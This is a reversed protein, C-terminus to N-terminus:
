RFSELAPQVWRLLVNSVSPIQSSAITMLPVVGYKVMNMYFGTNLEGPTSDEIRSLLGDKEMEALIWGTVLGLILFLVLFSRDIVDDARFAYTHLAAFLLCFTLGISFLLSRMHIVTRRIYSYFPLAVIDEALMYKKDQSKVKKAKAQQDNEKLGGDGRHWYEPLLESSLATVLNTMANQLELVLTQFPVYESVRMPRRRPPALTIIESRGPGDGVLVESGDAAPESVRTLPDPIDAQWSIRDAVWVRGNQEESELYRMVLGILREVEAAV